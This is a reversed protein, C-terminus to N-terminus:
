KERDTVSYSFSLSPIYTKGQKEVQGDERMRKLMMRVAPRPKGLEAAIAAPSLGGEERLLELLERREANLLQAADDGLVSWGFPDQGFQLALTKEETERGIVELTAEGEPKRRLHWLTDVAAAIGGTGAVAEVPGDSAGKRVHHVVAIATQFTEALARIRSVEAYQSRFVDSTSKGGGKILATLTDLVTLRPQLKDILAALQEAGGSMLPLLDYVFHLNKTWEGPGALKRLRGMTRAAPEELAVYLVPGHDLVTVGKVQAGGAIAIAIQLMLWSKGAKAKAILMVLGAWMLGALLPRLQVPNKAYLEDASVIKPLSVVNSDKAAPKNDSAILRPGDFHTRVDQWHKDICSHHQCKFGPQGDAAQIIVACGGTHQPNFPCDIEWKTGGNYSLPGRRVSLQESHKAIFSGV